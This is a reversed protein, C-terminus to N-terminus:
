NNNPPLVDSSKKFWSLFKREMVPWITTAFSAFCICLIEKYFSNIDVTRLIYFILTGLISGAFFGRVKNAIPETSLIAKVLASFIALLAGTTIIKIVEEKNDSMKMLNDRESSSM